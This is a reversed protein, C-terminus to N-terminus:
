IDLIEVIFSLSRDLPDWWIDLIAWNSSETLPGDKICFLGANSHSTDDSCHAAPLLLHVTLILYIGLHLQGHIIEWEKINKFFIGSLTQRIPHYSPPMVKQAQMHEHVFQGVRPSLDWSDMFALNYHEKTTQHCPLAM